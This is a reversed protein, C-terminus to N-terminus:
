PAVDDLHVRVIVTRAAARSLADRDGPPLGLRRATGPFRDVYRRLGLEVLQPHEDYTYAVGRGTRERHRLVVRVDAGGVLNRWWTKREADGALVWLGEADRVYQVPFTFPRGSRRGVVTLLMVSRDVLSSLPSRVLAGMFRNLPPPRTPRDLLPGTM